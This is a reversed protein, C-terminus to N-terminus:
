YTTRNTFTNWDKTDAPLSGGGPNTTTDIVNKDTLKFHEAHGDAFNWAFGRNHRRSPINGWGIGDQLKTLFYGDDITLDDEDILVWLRSPNKMQTDKTFMTGRSTPATEGGGMWCNMSLSRVLPVNNIRRTDGACKLLETNSYYKQFVSILLGNRNTNSHLPIPGYSTSTTSMGAYGPAWCNPNAQGQARGFGPIYPWPNSEILKGASDGAYMIWAYGLQKMNNMCKTQQAKQKAKSLAPLLMGALIAIIAIVVLLEILTFAKRTSGFIRRM